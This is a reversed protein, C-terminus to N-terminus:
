GVCVGDRDTQREIGGGGKETQREIRGVVGEREIQREIGCVCVCWRERSTERDWACM